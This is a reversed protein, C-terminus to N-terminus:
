SSGETTRVLGGENFCTVTGGRGRGVTRRGYESKACVCSSAGIRSIALVSSSSIISSPGAKPLPSAGVSRAMRIPDTTGVVWSSESDTTVDVLASDLIVGRSSGLAGGRFRRGNSNRRPAISPVIRGARQKTPTPRSANSDLFAGGERVCEMYAAAVAAESDSGADATGVVACGAASCGLATMEAIEADDAFPTGTWGARVLLFCERAVADPWQCEAIGFLLERVHLVYETIFM